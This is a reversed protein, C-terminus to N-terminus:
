QGQGGPGGPAGPGPFKLITDGPTALTNGPAVSASHQVVADIREVYILAHVAADKRM